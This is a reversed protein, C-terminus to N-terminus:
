VVLREFFHVCTELTSGGGFAINEIMCPALYEKIDEWLRLSSSGYFLNAVKEIKGENIKKALVQVEVEYWQM